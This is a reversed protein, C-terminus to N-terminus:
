RAGEIQDAWRDIVAEVELAARPPFRCSTVTELIRRGAIGPSIAFLRGLLGLLGSGREVQMEQELQWIAGWGTMVLRAPGVDATLGAESVRHLAPAGPGVCALFVSRSLDERRQDLLERLRLSLGIMPANPVASATAPRQGGGITLVYASGALPSDPDCHSGRQERRRTRGRGAAGHHHLRECHGCWASLTGRGSKAPSDASATFRAALIPSRQKM